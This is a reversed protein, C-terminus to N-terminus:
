EFSSQLAHNGHMRQNVRNPIVITFSTGVGPVSSLAISGGLKDVANKVIYLGIGSGDSQETARYFMEFIKQQDKEHIGIGNDAFKIVARMLDIDIKISVSSFSEDLRRYKIANSILNRFIEGIRWPDGHFENGKIDLTRHMDKAGELYNLENFTNEIISSFDVVEIAVEMKLNKSHSLVDGIFHDLHEVKTGILDLYEMPNDNNGPLKALNVLGLISSLPARLDHSVKYVFNDLETNRIKLEEEVRIRDSIDVYVGYIGIIVDDQHIPVGYLIVNVLRGDKHKRNTEISVVRNTAILNNLDIGEHHLHDPVIFDNLNKGRLENLGYGFMREFGGNISTIKGKEDLLVVAIPINQFLKTFMTENKRIIREAQKRETIDKFIIQISPSGKYFFPFAGAEVDIEKGDKRIYKQEVMEAPTLLAADKLRHLVKDRYDAHVYDMVHTGILDNASSGLIQKAQLNAYVVKDQHHVLVGVPLREVLMQFRADEEDRSLFRPIIVGKYSRPIDGSQSFAFVEVETVGFSGLDFAGEWYFDRDQQFAKGWALTWTDLQVGQLMGEFSASDQLVDNPDLHLVTQVNPSIFQFTRKLNADVVLEFIIASTQKPSLTM